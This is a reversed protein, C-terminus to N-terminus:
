LVKDGTLFRKRSQVCRFFVGGQELRDIWTLRVPPCVDVSPRAIGASLMDEITRRERLDLETHAM